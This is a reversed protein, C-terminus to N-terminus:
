SFYLERARELEKLLEELPPIEEDRELIVGKVDAYDLVVELLDWIESQTPANHGDVWWGDQVYAGVFHLQVIRESPIQHLMEVPDFRYNVSNIYLNTVDLLIGVDCEDCVRCLFEGEGMENDPYQLTETINELILPVQIHDQLRAVNDRLARLAAETRPIPTLHGIDVGGARTFAIHESCWPPKVREVIAVYHRLYDPDLGDASGLSMGLGHPILPFNNGLLTLEADKSATPAFYHDATIELFDIASRHYFLQSLFPPRFGLGVGLKPLSSSPSDVVGEAAM